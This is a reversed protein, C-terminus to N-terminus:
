AGRETAGALPIYAGLREVGPAGSSSSRSSKAQKPKMWGLFPCAPFLASVASPLNNRRKKRERERERGTERGRERERDKERERRERERDRERERERQGGDIDMTTSSMCLLRSGRGESSAM